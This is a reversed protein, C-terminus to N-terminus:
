EAPASTVGSRKRVAEALSKAMLASALNAGDCYNITESDLFSGVQSTPALTVKAGASVLRESLSQADTSHSDDFEIMVTKDLILLSRPEIPGPMNAALSTGSQSDPSTAKTGSSPKAAYDNKATDTSWLDNVLVPFPKPYNFFVASVTLSASLIFLLTMTWLLLTAPGKVVSSGQTAAKAFVVLLLMLVFMAVTAFFAVKADKFFSAGLAFAAMVGAVGLAYRVAPVAKTAERIISFTQRFMTHATAEVNHVGWHFFSRWSVGDAGDLDTYRAPLPSISADSDSQSERIGL